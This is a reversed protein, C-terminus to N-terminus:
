GDSRKRLPKAPVGVVLAGPPVDKNVVSSAGTQAGKGVRVPAVLMSDSGIFAGEEIITRHKSDGDYNCTIAGAGINVNAGVDADGIYSFHNSKSGRGMHTRNVEASTGLRVDDDLHSGGRVHCFPGVYVNNMLTSDQIVANPGIECGSGIVSKGMITTNPKIVTGAGIEIHSDIYTTAPDIITVGNAALHSAHKIRAGLEHQFRKVSEDDAKASNTSM